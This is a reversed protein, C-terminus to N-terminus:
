RGGKRAMLQCIEEFSTGIHRLAFTDAAPQNLRMVWAANLVDIIDVGDGPTLNGAAVQAALRRAREWGAYRLVPLNEDIMRFLGAQQKDLQSVTRKPIKRPKRGAALTTEWLQAMQARCAAFVSGGGPETEDLLEFTRLIVHMRKAASPHTQLGGELDFASTPDSQQFIFAWGYMPGVAYVAAMDAYHERLFAQEQANAANENLFRAVVEFQSEGDDAKIYPEAVHAFEHALFPLDWISEAPFRVRVVGTRETLYEGGLVTFRQWSVDALHCLHEVFADAIDCIGDDLGAQRDLTGHMLSMCEDLLAGLDADITAYSRWCAALNTERRVDDLLALSKKRNNAFDIDFRVKMRDRFRVDTMDAIAQEARSIDSLSREIRHILVDRNNM